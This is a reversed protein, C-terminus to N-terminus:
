PPALAALIHRAKDLLPKDVMKGDMQVAGGGSEAAAALVKRAWEIDAAAPAFAANVAPVQRPHICLKATFGLDRARELDAALVAEDQLAVTVGDVPPLLGAHRSAIAIQFRAPDFVAGPGPMRADVGFDLHGFALREVSPTAAVAHINVLAAVTEILAISPRGPLLKAVRALSDPEAKPVMLKAQPVTAFAAIDAEFWPTDVANIRVIGEGGSAFWNAVCARAADKAAPGVADELDFVICHAGSAAAKAFREPRDGPVFLYSAPVSSM